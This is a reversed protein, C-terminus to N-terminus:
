DGAAAAGESARGGVSERIHPYQATLPAFCRDREAETPLSRCHRAERTVPDSSCGALLALVSALAVAGGFVPNHMVVEFSSLEHKWCQAVRDRDTAAFLHRSQWLSHGRELSPPTESRSISVRAARAM